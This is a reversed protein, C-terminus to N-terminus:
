IMFACLYVILPGMQILKTSIPRTTEAFPEHYVCLCVYLCVVGTKRVVVIVICGIM